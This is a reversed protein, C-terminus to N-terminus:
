YLFQGCLLVSDAWVRWEEKCSCLTGCAITQFIRVKYDMRKEKLIHNVLMQKITDDIEANFSKM